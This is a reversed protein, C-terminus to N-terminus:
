NGKNGGNEKIKDKGNNSAKDAENKGKSNQKSIIQQKVDVKHELAAERKIFSNIRGDSGNFTSNQTFLNIQDNLKIAQNQFQSLANFIGQISITPGNAIKLTEILSILATLKSQTENLIQLQEFTLTSNTSNNSENLQVEDDFANEDAFIPVTFASVLIFVFLIIFIKQM